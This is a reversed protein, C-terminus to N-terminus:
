ERSKRIGSFVIELLTDVSQNLNGPNNGRIWHLIFGDFLVIFIDATIKINISRFSGIHTGENLLSIITKRFPDYFSELNILPPYGNNKNQIGNAWFEIIIEKYQVSQELFSILSTKFLLVLKKEPSIGNGMAEKILQESKHFLLNFADNLIDEKNNFYEYVTSKGIKAKEAIDIIKTNYFGKQAFVKMAEELIQEKKKRKDVIKPM